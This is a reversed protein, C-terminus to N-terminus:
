PTGGECVRTAHQLLPSRITLGARSARKLNVDFRLKEASIYLSLVIGKDCGGPSECVTLIPRTAFREALSQSRRTGSTPLFIVQYDDLNSDFTEYRVEFPRLGRPKEEMLRKFEEAVPSHGIFAIKMPRGALSESKPWTVFALVMELFAAKAEPETRENRQGLPTGGSVHVLATGALAIAAALRRLTPLMIPCGSFEDARSLWANFGPM